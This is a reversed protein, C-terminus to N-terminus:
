FLLVELPKLLFSYIYLQNWLTIGMIFIGFSVGLLGVLITSIWLLTNDKRKEAYYLSMNFLFGVCIQFVPIGSDYSINSVLMSPIIVYFPFQLVSAVIIISLSGFM